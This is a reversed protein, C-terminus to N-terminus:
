MCTGECPRCETHGTCGWSACAAQRAAEGCTNPTRKVYVPANCESTFYGGYCGDSFRRASGTFFDIGCVGHTHEDIWRAGGPKMGVDRFEAESPNNAWWQACTIYQRPWDHEEECQKNCASVWPVCAGRCLQAQALATDMLFVCAVGLTWRIVKM